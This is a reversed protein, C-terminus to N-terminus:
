YNSIQKNCSLDINKEANKLKSDILTKRIFYFVISGCALSIGVIAVITIINM